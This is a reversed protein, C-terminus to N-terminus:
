YREVVMSNKNYKKRLERVMEQAAEITSYSGVWVLYLNQGNRIKNTVEVSYGLQDFFKKQNEANALTSYAGAQVTYREKSPVTIPPAAHAEVKQTDQTVIEKEPLKVPKDEQPPLRQETKGSLYPSSPYDKTLQMYKIDATRYLGLSYYYQYIHYLADDAWESAPFNDVVSQYFKVAEIGDIAVRGQIYLVAPDNQHKSVLEPLMKRVEESQGREIKELASKIQSDVAQGIMTTTLFISLMFLRFLETSYKERM